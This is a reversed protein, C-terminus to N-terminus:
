TGWIQMEPYMTDSPDSSHDLGQAHGLEHELVRQYDEPGAGLSELACENIAISDTFNGYEDIAWEYSGAENGPYCVSYIPTAEARDPALTVMAVAMLLTVLSLKVVKHTTEVTELV